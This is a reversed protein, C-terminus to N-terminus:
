VLGANDVRGRCKFSKCFPKVVFQEEVEDIDAAALFIHSILTLTRRPMSFGNYQYVSCLDGFQELEIKIVAMTVLDYKAARVVIAIRTKEFIRHGICLHNVM